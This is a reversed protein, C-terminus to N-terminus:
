LVFGVHKKNMKFLKFFSKLCSYAHLVEIFKGLQPNTPNHTILFRLCDYSIEVPAPRNMKLSEYPKNTFRYLHQAEFSYRLPLLDELKFFAKM